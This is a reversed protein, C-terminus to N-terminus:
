DKRNNSKVPNRRFNGRHTYLEPTMWSKIPIQLFDINWNQTEEESEKETIFGTNFSKLTWVTGIDDRTRLIPWKEIRIKIDKNLCSKCIM